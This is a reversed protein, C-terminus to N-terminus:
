RRCDLAQEVSEFVNIEPHTEIITFSPIPPRIL